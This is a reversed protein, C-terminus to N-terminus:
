NINSGSTNGSEEKKDTNAVVKEPKTEAKVKRLRNGESVADVYAEQLDVIDVNPEISHDIFDEDIEGNPFHFKKFDVYAHGGDIMKQILKDTPIYGQAETLKKGKNVEGVSTPEDYQTRFKM